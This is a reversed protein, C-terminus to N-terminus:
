KQGNTLSLRGRRPLAMGDVRAADVTQAASVAYPERVGIAVTQRVRDGSPFFGPRDTYADIRSGVFRPLVPWRHCDASDHTGFVRDERVETRVLAGHAALGHAMAYGIGSAAGTVFAVRGDLSFLNSMQDGAM